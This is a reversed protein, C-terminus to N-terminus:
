YFFFFDNGFDGLLYGIKDRLGFPRVSKSEITGGTRYAPEKMSM